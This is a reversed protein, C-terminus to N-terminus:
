DAMRVRAKNKSFWLPISLGGMVMVPDKGSDSTAPSMAEGANNYNVGLSFSPYNLRRALKASEEAKDVMLGAIQIEQNQWEALQDLDELALTAATPLSAAMLPLPADMPQNCLANIEAVQVTRLERLTILDYDLQALQSEAQFVDNLEAKEASYQAETFSLIQQLAEQNKQTIGIAGDLYHLEYLAKKLNAIVDRVTKEYELRAIEIEKYVVRGKQKLTGPFPFTQMIEVGPNQSGMQSEAGNEVDYSFTLMPDELATEMPFKEIVAAWRARAAQIDSNAAFAQQVLSEQSALQALSAQPSLWGWFCFLLLGWIWGPSQPPCHNMM